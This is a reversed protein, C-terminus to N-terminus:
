VDGDGGLDLRGGADVQLPPDMSEGDWRYQISTGDPRKCLTLRGFEDYSLEYFRDPDPTAHPSPNQM